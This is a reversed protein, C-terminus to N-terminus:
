HEIMETVKQDKKTLKEANNKLTTGTADIKMLVNVATKSCHKTVSTQIIITLKYLLTFGNVKKHNALVKLLNEYHGSPWVM